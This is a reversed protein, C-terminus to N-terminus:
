ASGSSEAIRARSGLLRVSGHWLQPFTTPFRVCFTLNGCKWLRDHELSFHVIYGARDLRNGMNGTACGLAM